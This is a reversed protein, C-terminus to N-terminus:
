RRSPRDKSVTYADVVEPVLRAGAAGSRDPYNFLKACTAYGVPWSWSSYALAPDVYDVDTNRSVRLTGGRPAEAAGADRGVLAAAALCAAAVVAAVVVTSVMQRM